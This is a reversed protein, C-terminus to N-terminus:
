VEVKVLKSLSFFGAILMLVAAAAMAMGLPETYLPRIADPRVLLMYLFMVIPLGGLVYASIRGEASLVRVQRRLYDRERLTDSVTNLLEALNGGVERQIRIAMVVWSFDESDMREAVGELADEMDVGLRAEMLARSLEGSMPQQGERVVTDIGQPLSLGASLGGSILQLTEALQGNFTALRKSHKRKLYLWPLAAGAILFLVMLKLGGLVMGVFAGGVALGAHMLLWEAATLTLGAGALRQALRTEFDGEVVKETLAVASERLSHTSAAASHKGSGPKPAPGGAGSYYAVQQEAFSSRSPRRLLVVALLGALGIGLAGGGILLGREDVLPRSTEVPKLGIASAPSTLAVFASDTYRQDGATIAVSISAEETSHAEYPFTVLVQRNLAEGQAAFLEELASPDDAAIVSGGNAEAIQALLARTGSSQEVAVVDVVAGSDTAAAVADELSAGKGGDQGDSLLLVSKAGGDGTLDIAELVADYAQTGFTLDDIENIAANVAEHDATPETVDQVAGSFTLLGIRVDDPAAAVFAKAASKAAAFRDGAMSLSADLALVTTREVQGEDVPSAEASVPEGNVEVALSELDPQSEASLGDLALLISVTGDDGYEIYDINTGEAAHVPATMFTVVAALAGAIATKRWVAVRM